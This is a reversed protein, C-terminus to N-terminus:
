ISSKMTKHLLGVGRATGMQPRLGMTVSGPVAKRDRVGHKGARERQGTARVWGRRGALRLCM